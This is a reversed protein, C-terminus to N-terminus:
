SDQRGAQAQRRTQAPRAGRHSRTGCEQRGSAFTTQRTARPPQPRRRTRRCRSPQGAEQSGQGAAGSSAGASGTDGASDGGSQAQESSQDVSADNSVGAESDSSTEQEPGGTPAGDEDPQENASPLLSTAPPEENAATVSEDSSAAAQTENEAATAQGPGGTRPSDGRHHRAVAACPVEVKSEEREAELSELSRRLGRSTPIRAVM